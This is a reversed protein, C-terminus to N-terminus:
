ETTILSVARQQWGLIRGGKYTADLVGLAKREMTIKLSCDGSLGDLISAPITAIGADDSIFQQTWTSTEGSVCISDASIAIAETNSAPTWIVEIEGSRSITDGSTPHIIEFPTPLTVKSLLVTNSKERSLNVSVSANESVDNFNAYYWISDVSFSDGFLISYNKELIEARQLRQEKTSKEQLRSFLDDFIDEKIEFSDITAFLKDDSVLEVYADSEDINTSLRAEVHTPNKGTHIVDIYAVLNKSPVKDSLAKKDDDSCGVALFFSFLVVVRKLIFNM